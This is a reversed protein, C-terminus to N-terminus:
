RSGMAKELNARSIKQNYLAQIYSLKANALLVEADTVEIPNGVGAAYRGSAIEFNEQAQKVGLEATPISEEAQKLNLYAQQVDSFINQRLSEENAKLINLNAKAEQVQYKTLYGSFLPFSLAVGVNWGNDLSSPKEGSWSYAASGTLLPYYSTKALDISSDAAQRKAITSKLDPRNQYAKALADEFSVQYKEFSLNDVLVYEPAAPIGMANNLSVVSLKLANEAKILNLRANSLDAEAKTVDFRPKTGVEYFGKAQELHQRFQNATDLAVDRNRKGQLVGYYAQKVSLIVQESTNELDSRSSDLGLNQIKIQSPTKGFDYIDQSLSFGTVYQDYSSTRGISKLSNSSNSSSLREYSSSWNIQPYYNSKAQGVRSASANVGQAAATINPQMKLAIEICRELTLSEGKKIPDDAHVKFPTILIFVFILLIVQRM